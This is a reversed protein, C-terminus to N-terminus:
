RAAGAGCCRRRSAPLRRAAAGPNGPRPWRRRPGDRRGWRGQRRTEHAEPFAAAADPRVSGGVRRPGRGSECFFEAVIEASGRLTIGQERTLQRAM